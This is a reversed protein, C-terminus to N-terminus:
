RRRRRGQRLRNEGIRDEGSPRRVATSNTPVPASSVTTTPEAMWAESSEESTPTCNSALEEAQGGSQRQDRHQEASRCGGGLVDDHRTVVLMGGGAVSGGVLQAVVEDAVGVQRGPRGVVHRLDLLEGDGSGFGGRGGDEVDEAAWGAGEVGEQVFM